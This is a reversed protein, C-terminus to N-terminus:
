IHRICVCDSLAAQLEQQQLDYRVVRLALVEALVVLEVGLQLVDPRVRPLAEHLALRQAVDADGVMQLRELVYPLLEPGQRGALGGVCQLSAVGVFIERDCVLLEAPERM